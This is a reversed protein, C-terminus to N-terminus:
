SEEEEDPDPLSAVWELGKRIAWVAGVLALLNIVFNIM